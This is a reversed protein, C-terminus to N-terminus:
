APLFGMWKFPFAAHWFVLSCIETDLAIWWVCESIEFIHQREKKKKREM